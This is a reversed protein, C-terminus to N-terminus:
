YTLLAGRQKGGDFLVIGVLPFDNPLLDAFRCFYTTPRADWHVLMSVQALASVLCALLVCLLVKTALISRGMGDVTQM